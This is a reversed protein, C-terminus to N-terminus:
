SNRMNLTNCMVFEHANIKAAPFVVFAIVGVEVFFGQFLMAAPQDALKFFRVWRITFLKQFIHQRILESSERTATPAGASQKRADLIFYLLHSSTAPSAGAM